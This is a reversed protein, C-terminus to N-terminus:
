VMRYPQNKYRLQSPGNRITHLLKSQDMGYDAGISISIKKPQYGILADTPEVIKPKPKIKIRVKSKSKSKSKSKTKIKPVITADTTTTSKKTTSLSPKLPEKQKQKETVDTVENMLTSSSSFSSSSLLTLSSTAISLSSPQSSSQVIDKISLSSRNKQYMPLSEWTIPSPPPQYARRTMYFNNLAEKQLRLLQDQNTTLFISKLAQECSYRQDLPIKLLHILLEKASPSISAWSPDTRIDLHGNTIWSNLSEGTDSTDFPLRNVLMEHLILGISWSDIKEDFGKYGNELLLEPAYYFITGMIETSKNVDKKEICVGFDTIVINYFYRNSILINSPKLDRHIIGNEHLYKTARCLQFLIYQCHNEKLKHKKLLDALTGGFYAPFILSYTGEDNEEYHILPIINPHNLSKLVKVERLMKAKELAANPGLARIPLFKKCVYSGYSKFTPGCLYIYSQTGRGIMEKSILLTEKKLESTNNKYKIFTPITIPKMNEWEHNNMKVFLFGVRTKGFTIVSGPILPKVNGYGIKVGNISTGNRSKDEICVVETFDRTIISFIRCHHSHVKKSKIRIACDKANGIIINPNHPIALAKNSYRRTAGCLVGLYNGNSEDLINPIIPM